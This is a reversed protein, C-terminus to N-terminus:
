SSQNLCINNLEQDFEINAKKLDPLNFGGHISAGSGLIM